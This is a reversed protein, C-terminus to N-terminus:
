DVLRLHFAAKPDNALLRNEHAAGRPNDFGEFEVYHRRSDLSYQLDPRNTGVRVRDLNVQQQNVRLDYAGPPLNAIEDALAQNHSARGIPRTLGLARPPTPNVALDQPLRERGPAGLRGGVGGIGGGLLLDQALGGPDFPNRGHVGRNAAGGAVSEVGGALAGRGFAAAKTSGSVFAGAGAGLGGAAPM